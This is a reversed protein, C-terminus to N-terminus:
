VNIDIILPGPNTFVSKSLFDVQNNNFTIAHIVAESFDLHQRLVAAM